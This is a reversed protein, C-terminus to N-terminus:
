TKRRLLVRIVLAVAAALAVSGLIRGLMRPESGSLLDVSKPEEVAPPGYGAHPGGAPRAAAALTTTVLQSALQSNLDVHIV